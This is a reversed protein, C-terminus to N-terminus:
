GISEVQRRRTVAREYATSGLLFEGDQTGCRTDWGTPYRAPLRGWGVETRSFSRSITELNSAPTLTM